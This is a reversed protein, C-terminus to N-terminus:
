DIIYDATLVLVALASGWMLCAVCDAMYFRIPKINSIGLLFPTIPRIAPIFRGIIVAYTGRRALFNKTRVINRHRKIFFKTELIKPGVRKGFIFGSTDGLNAGLLAAPAIIYLPLLDVNYIYVCTSFLIASSFPILIGSLIFSEIFAFCLITLWAYEPNTSLFLEIKSLDM